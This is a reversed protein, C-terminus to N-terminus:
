RRQPVSPAGAKALVDTIWQMAEPVDYNGAHPQNWALRYNLGKVNGDAALARSLNISVTFATDSDRTGHRVYWYPATAARTGIYRLPDIMKIQDNVLTNPDAVVREWSLGTDDLGIGDHKADNRNWAFETYNSYRQNRTGFLNSEGGNGTYTSLGTTDFAPVPKLPSQQAVFELYKAVNMSVVKKTANDVEIWDNTFTPAQVQGGPAGEAAYFEASRTVEYQLQALMNDATLPKGMYNTLGLSKQYAAFRAAIEASGRPDPNSGVAERTGLTTFLWEYAIDANGLDTVPCYAVIAFVDDRMTSRGRADIGAAGVAALYPFYDRSNGSAGLAAALAGGGSTGNVV